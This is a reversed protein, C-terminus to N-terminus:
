CTTARTSTDVSGALVAVLILIGVAGTVESEHVIGLVCFVFAIVFLVCLFVRFAFDPNRM